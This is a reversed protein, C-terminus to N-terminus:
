DETQEHTYYNYIGRTYITGHTKLYEFRFIKLGMINFLDNMINYQIEIYCQLQM